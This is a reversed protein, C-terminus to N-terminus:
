AGEYEKTLMRVRKLTSKAGWSHPQHRHEDCAARFLKFLLGPACMRNKTFLFCVRAGLVWLTRRSM